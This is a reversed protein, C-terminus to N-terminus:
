VSTQSVKKWSVYLFFDINEWTMKHVAPSRQSILTKTLKKGLSAHARWLGFSNNRAFFYCSYHLSSPISYYYSFYIRTYGFGSANSLWLQYMIEFELSPRGWLRKTWSNKGETTWEHSNLSLLSVIFGLNNAPFYKLAGLFHKLLM